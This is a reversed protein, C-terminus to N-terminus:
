MDNGNWRMDPFFGEPDNEFREKKRKLIDLERGIVIDFFGNGHKKITKGKQEWRGRETFQITKKKDVM